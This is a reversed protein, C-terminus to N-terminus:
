KRKCLSLLIHESPSVNKISMFFFKGYKACFLKSLVDFLCSSINLFRDLRCFLCTCKRCHDLAISCHLYSCSIVCSCITFWKSYSSTNNRHVERCHDWPAPHNRKGDCTSICYYQFCARLCRQCSHSDHLQEICLTSERFTNYVKYCAATYLSIDKKCILSYLSNCEYSCCTNTFLYIGFCCSMAFSNLCLTLCLVMCKYKLVAVKLSSNIRDDVGCISAGTHSTHSKRNYAHLLTNCILKNGEKLFFCFGHFKSTCIIFSCIETRYYICAMLLLDAVPDLFTDILACLKYKVSTIYYNRSILVSEEYSRCDKIMYCRLHCYSVALDESRYGADFSYFIILFTNRDHIGVWKCVTGTDKCLASIVATFESHLCVATHYSDIYTDRNRGCVEWEGSIFIGEETIQM